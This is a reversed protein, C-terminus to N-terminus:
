NATEFNMACRFGVTSSRYDPTLPERAAGRWFYAARSFWHGGRTVRLLGEEDNGYSVFWSDVWEAVGGALDYAGVWSLWEHKTGTAYPHGSNWNVQMPDFTSGWPYILADPGRAAYEWEAETPLRAGRQECFAVAEEWSVSERPWSWERDFPYIQVLDNGAKEGYARNSVELQDIYFPQDFCIEYAPQEVSFDENCGFSGNFKDCWYQAEQLQANTSGMQFCGAPVLAMPVGDTSQIAPTWEDNSSVGQQALEISGPSVAPFTPVCSALFILALVSWPKGLLSSTRGEVPSMLATYLLLSGCKQPDSKNALKAM